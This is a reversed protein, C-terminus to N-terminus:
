EYTAVLKTQLQSTLAQQQVLSSAHSDAQTSQTQLNRTLQEIYSNMNLEAQQFQTNMVSLDDVQDRLTKIITDKSEHGSEYQEIM